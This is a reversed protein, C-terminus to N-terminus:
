LSLFNEIIRLGVPGSKEPHFQTGFINGRRIAASICRGDYDANALRDADNDPTATYSHIFYCTAAHDIGDLITGDWAAGPAPPM